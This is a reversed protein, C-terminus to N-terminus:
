PLLSHSASINNSRMSSFGMSPTMPADGRERERERESERERERVCVCVCSCECVCDEHVGMVSARLTAACNM